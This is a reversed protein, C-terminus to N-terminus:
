EEIIKDFDEILAQVYEKSMGVPNIRAIVEGSMPDKIHKVTNFLEFRNRLAVVEKNIRRRKIKKAM